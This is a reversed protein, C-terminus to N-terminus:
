HDFLYPRGPARKTLTCNWGNRGDLHFNPKRPLLSHTWSNLSVISLASQQSLTFRRASSMGDETFPPIKLANSAKLAPADLLHCHLIKMQDETIGHIPVVYCNAVYNTQAVMVDRFADKADKKGKKWDWPIFSVSNVQEKYATKLLTM